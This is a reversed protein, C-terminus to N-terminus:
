SLDASEPAPAPTADADAAVAETARRSRRKSRVILLVIGGVIALLVIWPVLVGIGVLLTAFFAVLGNWGAVLGDFFNSPETAPADAVSILNLTITSMAVQDDFYRKQSKLSELEGQRGSIATELQILTETDEAKTLLALLRDVSADLATIRAELDRSEMTVDVASISVEQVTGLEKFKDLTATLDAAPIRLTLTSSGRTGEQPAYENRGDVRGGVSETIRIADNTAEEPTEVTVSLYGTTIVDRAADSTLTDSRVSEDAVPVGASEAPSFGGDGAEDILYEQSENSSMDSVGASCGALTLSSLAIATTIFLTRRM